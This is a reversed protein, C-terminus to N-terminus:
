PVLYDLDVQTASLLGAVVAADVDATSAPLDFRFQSYHHSSNRTVYDPALVDTIATPILLAGSTGRPLITLLQLEDGTVAAPALEDFTVHYVPIPEGVVYPGTHVVARELTRINAPLQGVDFTVFGYRRGDSPRSVVGTLAPVATLTQSVERLTWLPATTDPVPNGAPTSDLGPVAPEDGTANPGSGAAGDAPGSGGADASPLVPLARGGGEAAPRLDVRAPATSVPADPDAAAGADGAGAAADQVGGETAQGCGLGGLGSLSVLFVLSSPVTRISHTM